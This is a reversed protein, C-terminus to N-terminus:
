KKASILMSPKPLIDSLRCVCALVNMCSANVSASRASVTDKSRPPVSGYISRSAPFTGSAVLASEPTEEFLESESLLLPLLLLLESESAV